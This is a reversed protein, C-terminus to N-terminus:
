SDRIRKTPDLWRRETPNWFLYGGRVEDWAIGALADLAEQPVDSTLSLRSGESDELELAGRGGGADQRATFIGKVFAKVAAHVDQAALKGSEVAFSTFWAAIPVTLTVSVIWPLVATVGTRRIVGPEVDVDFGARQFADRVAALESPDAGAETYVSEIMATPPRGLPAPEDLIMLVDKYRHDQAILDDCFAQAQEHREFRRLM